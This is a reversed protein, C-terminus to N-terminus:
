GESLVLTEESPFVNRYSRSTQVVQNSMMLPLTGNADQIHSGYWLPRETIGGFSAHRARCLLVTAAV